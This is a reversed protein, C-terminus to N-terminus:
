RSKSPRAMIDTVERMRGLYANVACSDSQCDDRRAIFQERTKLLAARKEADAHGWSQGYLVALQRDLRALNPNKCVTTEGRGKAFKCNFSASISPESPKPAARPQPRASAVPPAPARPTRVPQTAAVAPSRVTPVTPAIIPPLRVPPLM